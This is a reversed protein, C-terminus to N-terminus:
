CTLGRMKTIFNKPDHDEGRPARSALSFERSGIRSAIPIELIKQFRDDRQVDEERKVSTGVDETLPIWM